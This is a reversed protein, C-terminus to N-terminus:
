RYSLALHHQLVPSTADPALAFHGRILGVGALVVVPWAETASRAFSNVFYYSVHVDSLM